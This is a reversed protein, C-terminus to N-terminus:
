DLPNEKYNLEVEKMSNLVKRTNEFLRETDRNVKIDKKSVIRLGDVIWNCYDLDKSDDPDTQDIYDPYYSKHGNKVTLNLVDNTDLDFVTFVNEGYDTYSEIIQFYDGFLELNEVLSIHDNIYSTPFQESQVRTNEKVMGLNNVTIPFIISSYEYTYEELIREKIEKIRQYRKPLIDNVWSDLNELNNSNHLKSTKDHNLSDYLKKAEELMDKMSEFRNDIYLWDLKIITWIRVKRVFIDKDSASTFYFLKTGSKDSSEKIWQPRHTALTLDRQKRENESKEETAENLQNIVMSFGLFSTTVAVFSSILTPLLKLANEWSIAKICALILLIASFLALVLLTFFYFAMIKKRTLRKM